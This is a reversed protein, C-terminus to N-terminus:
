PESLLVHAGGSQLLDLAAAAARSLDIIRGPIWPGRDNIRVVVERGNATNRVRVLTGFPLTRHAATLDNMDFREGSATRRGHFRQGYWSARGSGLSSAASPPEPTAAREPQAAERQPPTSCGALAALMAIALLGALRM